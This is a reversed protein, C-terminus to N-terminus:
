TRSRSSGASGVGGSSGSAEAGGSSRSPVSSGSRLTATSDTSDMSPTSGRRSGFPRTISVTYPQGPHHGIDVLAEDLTDVLAAAHTAHEFSTARARSWPDLLLTTDRAEYVERAFAMDNIGDHETLSPLEPTAAELMPILTKSETYLVLVHPARNKPQITVMRIRDKPIGNGLLYHFLIESNEQCFAETYPNWYYYTTTILAAQRQQKFLSASHKVYQMSASLSARHEIITNDRHMHLDPRNSRTLHLESLDTFAFRIGDRIAEDPLHAVAAWVKDINMDISDPMAHRSPGCGGGCLRLPAEAQWVDTKADYHVPVPARSDSGRPAEVIWHDGSRGRRAHYYGAEGGIYQRGDVQVLRRRAGPPLKEAPLQHAYGLLHTQEGVIVLSTAPMPAHIRNAIDHVDAQAIKRTAEYIDADDILRVHEPEIAGQIPKERPRQAHAGGEQPHPLPAQPSRGRSSTVVWGDWNRPDSSQVLGVLQDRDLPREELYNSAVNAMEGPVRILSVEPILGTTMDLAEAWGQISKRTHAHVEGNGVRAYLQILSDSTRRFPTRSAAIARLFEPLTYDSKIPAEAVPAVAIGDQPRATAPVHMNAELRADNESAATALKPM